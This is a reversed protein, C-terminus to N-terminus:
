GTAVEAALPLLWRAGCLVAAAFCLDAGIPALTLQDLTGAAVTPAVRGAVAVAGVIQREILTGTRRHLPGLLPQPGLAVFPLRIPLRAADGLRQHM